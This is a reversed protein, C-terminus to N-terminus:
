YAFNLTTFFLFLNFRGPEMLRSNSHMSKAVPKSHMLVIVNENRLGDCGVM